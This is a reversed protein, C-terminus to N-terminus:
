EIGWTDYQTTGDDPAHSLSMDSESFWKAHGDYFAINSGGRHIPTEPLTPMPPYDWLISVWEPNGVRTAVVQRNLNPNYGYDTQNGYSDQRLTLNSTNFNSPCRFIRLEEEIENVGSSDGLYPFLLPMLEKIDSTSTSTWGPLRGESDDDVYIRIVQIVQKLHALCKASRGMERAKIIAPILFSALILTIAMVAVLELTTLGRREDKM